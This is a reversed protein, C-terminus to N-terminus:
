KGRKIAFYDKEEYARDACGAKYAKQEAVLAQIKQNFGPMRENYATIRADLAQAEAKFANVAEQDGPTLAARKQELAETAKAVAAKEGDFEAQMRVAEDNQAKVRDAQALCARLEDRTMIKEGPKVPKGAAAAAGATALMLGAVWGAVIKQANM